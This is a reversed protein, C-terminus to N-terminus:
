LRPSLVLNKFIEMKRAISWPKNPTGRAKEFHYAPKFYQSPKAVANKFIVFGQLHPTGSEGVEYGYTLYKM